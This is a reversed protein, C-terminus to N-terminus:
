FDRREIAIGALAVLAAGGAVLLAMGTWPMLGTDHYVRGTMVAFVPALWEREGGMGSLGAVTFVPYCLARQWTGRILAELLVAAGYFLVGGAALQLGYRLADGPPFYRGALASGVPMLLSAFVATAAHELGGVAARVSLLRRRRAPLSLTYAATSGKCWNVAVGNAAYFVATFTCFFTSIRSIWTVWVRTPYDSSMKSADATSISFALARKGADVKMPRTPNILVFQLLMSLLAILLLHRSELWSKRWLM